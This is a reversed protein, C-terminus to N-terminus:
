GGAKKLVSELTLVGILEGYGVERPASGFVSMDEGTVPDEITKMQVAAATVKGNKVTIM